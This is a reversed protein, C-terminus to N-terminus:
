HTDNLIHFSRTGGSKSQMWQTCLPVDLFVVVVIRTFVSGIPDPIEKIADRATIIEDIVNLAPSEMSPPFPSDDFFGTIKLILCRKIDAAPCSIEGEGQCRL